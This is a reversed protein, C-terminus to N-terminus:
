RLTCLQHETTASVKYRPHIHVVKALISIETSSSSSQECIADNKSVYWKMASRARYLRDCVDWYKTYSPHKSDDFSARYKIGYHLRARRETVISGELGRMVAGRAVATWANVPQLVMIKKDVQQMQASSSATSTYAPPHNTPFHAQLRSHLYSSQGFGGVLILASVLEYRQHINSVQESVLDIIATVVPRFIEKVQERTLLMYGDLIGADENDNAGPFPVNSEELEDDDDSFHRKVYEEFNKLAEAWTRPKEALLRGFNEKGMRSMVHDEFRYNLFAAGCLGGSGAQSEEVTVPSLSKIRYCIIDVTGGGADCIVINDGVQLHNPQVAKLTYVAAAEPESILRIPSSIDARNAAQLTANKAKDSWVAPVTLVWDITTSQLFAPGYRRRLTSMTHEHLKALFDAVADSVKRGHKRLEDITEQSSVFSPLSQDRDLFLKICRIRSEGPKLQSGWRVDKLSKPEHFREELEDIVLNSTKSEPKM